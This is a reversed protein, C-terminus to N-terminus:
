LGVNLTLGYSKQIPYGRLSEPDMDKLSSITFLNSAQFAVSLSQLRLAKVVKQNFQYGANLMKLRLFNCDRVWFTSVKRNNDNSTAIKIRPYAAGPNEPTWTDTLHYKQFKQMSGNELTYQEAINQKYGLEGQFLMNVFFGKYNAGLRFSIDFDPYSSNKVYIRDSSTLMGDGDKDVYKIDGPALTANGQGDQDLKYNDIEEQSQFLGAAEYMTWVLSSKGKRRLNELQSSEDGFDLYEDDNKAMTLAANYKFKGITNKHSLTIDWGWAKLKAFNMNPVNGNVGTSPPYLYDPASTIKDTEYRWYYEATLAIRGDWFGLDLGLNYDRTKGWTLDANPNTYLMTGPTFTGGINYGYSVSEKYTKLYSYAGVLGDNGLLGTSARLKVNTLVPQKWRKFFPENSVVWSASFSPFFGWRKGPAFNTSGDARFSFEAFYRNDYAYTLRGIVSARELKSEDGVLRAVQATGITEPYASMNQNEGTMYLNHSRHYNAVFTASVDHKELFTRNFNAGIEYLQSEYFRDTQELSSVAKPYTTNSDATYEKTTTDYTYLTVPTSFDREIRSNDDFNGSVYMSLGKVWPLQWTLRANITGMKSTDKIYGGLGRINLLPNSGDASALMGNEFELVQLPSYSYAADITTYSSNKATSRSGSYGVSLNLGEALETDLKLTYNLRDRGVGSYLGKSDAYGLSLYYNAKKTGGSFSISHTMTSGTTDLYDLINQNGYVNPNSHTRIQELQEETYPVLTTAPSNEIATNRMKAFEYADLFEPLQTAQTVNLQGRYNIRLKKDMGKKTQVLIVGNAARSGYVAAAAADKLISISEIDDPNLDSLRTEGDSTNTGFRPVGDIVLLPAGNIGRIHINTEKATSPDGTSQMVQLGAVQGQLAQDLNTTPMMLLDEAKIVEVSGTINSKKQLGYGVVVLEDLNQADDEMQVTFDSTNKVKVTKQKYGIFSVILDEDAAGQPITFRGDMDTLAGTKGDKWRIQAGIVPEGGKDLVVGAVTKVVQQAATPANQQAFVPISQGMGACLMM